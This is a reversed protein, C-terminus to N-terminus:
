NTSKTNEKAKANKKCTKLGEKGELNINVKLLREHNGSKSEIECSYSECLSKLFIRSLKIQDWNEDEDSALLNLYTLIFQFDNM